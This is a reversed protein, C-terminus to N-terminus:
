SKKMNLYAYTDDLDKMDLVGSWNLHVGRLMPIPKHGQVSLAQISLLAKYSISYMNGAIKYEKFNMLAINKAINKLKEPEDFTIVFEDACQNFLKEVVLRSQPTDGGAILNVLNNTGKTKNKTNEDIYKALDKSDYRLASVVFPAVARIWTAIGDIQKNNIPVFGYRFWAYGGVDVNAELTIRDVGEAKYLELTDKFLQKNIGTSRAGAPVQIKDLHVAFKGDEATTFSNVYFFQHESAASKGTKVSVQLGNPIKEIGFDVEGKVFNLYGNVSNLSKLSDTVLKTTFNAVETGHELKAQHYFTSIKANILDNM